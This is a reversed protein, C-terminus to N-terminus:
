DGPRPEPLGAEAEQLPNPPRGATLDGSAAAGAWWFRACGRNNVVTYTDITATLGRGLSKGDDFGGMSASLTMKAFGDPVFVKKGWLPIRLPAVAKCLTFNNTCVWPATRPLSSYYTFKTVQNPRVQTQFQVEARARTATPHPPHPRSEHPVCLFPM